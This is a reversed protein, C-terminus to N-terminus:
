IFKKKLRLLKISSDTSKKSGIERLENLIGEKLVIEFIDMISYVHGLVLGNPLKGHLEQGEGISKTCTFLSKHAKAKFLIEWLDNADLFKEDTSSLRCTELNYTENIGGTLDVLADHPYGVILFEYCINLKAYAKELLPGYMENKEVFNKCFCLKNKDEYVPLFDDVVVDVWEGNVWFKFHFIGAYDSEDFSQNFPITRQILNPSNLVCAAAALMWCNGLKGQDLDNPEIKDIIFKPDKVIEHPRKWVIKSGVFNKFRFISSDDAPFKDDVFLQGTKKLESKLSEYNQDLYAKINSM